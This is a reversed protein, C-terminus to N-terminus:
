SMGMIGFLWINSNPYDTTNITSPNVKRIGGGHKVFFKMGASATSTAITNNGGGHEVYAKMETTASTVIAGATDRWEIKMQTTSLPSSAQSVAARLTGGRSSVTAYPSATSPIAPHNLTLVGGTWSAVTWGTPLTWGGVGDAAVYGRVPASVDRVELVIKDNPVPSAGASVVATYDGGRPVVAVNQAAFGSPLMAHSLTLIGASYSDVTFLGLQSKWTSDASDYYVYDAVDPMVQSMKIDTHGPEVSTGMLFGNQALTEDPVALFAVTMAAGLSEYHVRIKGGSTDSVYEISDLNIPRHNTNEPLLAWGAGTNRIVGAYFVYENSDSNGVLATKRVVDLAGNRTQTGPTALNTGVATDTAVGNTGPLGAPGPAGDDGKPGKINAIKQLAM